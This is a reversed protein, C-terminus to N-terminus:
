GQRFLLKDGGQQITKGHAFGDAVMVTDAAM